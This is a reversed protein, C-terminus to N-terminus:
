CKVNPTIMMEPDKLISGSVMLVVGFIYHQLDAVKNKRPRVLSVQDSYIATIKVENLTASM